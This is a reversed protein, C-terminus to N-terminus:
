EKGLIKFGAPMGPVSAAPTDPINEPVGYKDALNKRAKLLLRQAERVNETLSKPSQKLSFNQLAKTVKLGEADSLAGMGKMNPIQALFAQADINEILAEFDATDQSLTPMKSSVPGMASEVVGPSTNLIRHATNLFNDINARASEIDATKARIGDDRKQIAEDRKIQLEERKVQNAERGIQANMAAIRSNEKSVQIDNQIKKIDWGAKELDKVAMSEAFRADVAAKEAKANAEKLEAPAKDLARNEAGLKSFTEAFKEPDTAALTIAVTTKASEPSTKVMALIAETAKAEEENGSNRAAEIQTALLDQAIDPRGSNIAAYVQSASGIKKQKQDTDLVDWSRKFHESLQPYKTMLEAYDQAGANPNRTIAALDAQLQQQQQMAAQKQQQEIDQARIAGGAQFGQLSSAFPNGMNINYNIPEM